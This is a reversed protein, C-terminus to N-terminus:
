KGAFASPNAGGQESRKTFNYAKKRVTPNAKPSGKVSEKTHASHVSGMALGSGLSITKDHAKHAPTDKTGAMPASVIQGGYSAPKRKVEKM